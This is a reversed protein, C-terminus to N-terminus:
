TGKKNLANYVEAAEEHTLNQWEKAEEIEAKSPKRPKMGPLPGPKCFDRYLEALLQDDSDSRVIVKPHESAYAEYKRKIKLAKGRGKGIEQDLKLNIAEFVTGDEPTGNVNIGVRQAFVEDIIEWMPPPRRRKQRMIFKALKEKKTLAPKPSPNTEKKDDQNNSM